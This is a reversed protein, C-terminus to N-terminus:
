FLASVSVCTMSRRRPVVPGGRELWAEIVDDPDPMSGGTLLSIAQKARGLQAELDAIRAVDAPDRASDVQVLRGTPANRIAAPRARLEPEALQETPGRAVGDLMAAQQEQWPTM